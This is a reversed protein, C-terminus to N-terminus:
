FSQGRYVWCARFIERGQKGSLWSDIASISCGKNLWRGVDDCLAGVQASRFGWKALNEKMSFPMKSWAYPVRREMNSTWERRDEASAVIVGLKKMRTSDSMVPKSKPWIRTPQQPLSVHTSFPSSPMSFGCRSQPAIAAASLRHSSCPLIFYRSRAPHPRMVLTQTTSITVM